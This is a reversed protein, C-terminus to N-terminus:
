VPLTGLEGSTAVARWAKEAEPHHAFPVMQPLRSEGVGGSGSPRAQGPTLGAGPAQITVGHVAAAPVYGSCRLRSCIVGIDEPSLAVKHRRGRARFGEGSGSDAPLWSLAFPAM